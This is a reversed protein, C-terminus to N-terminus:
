AGMKKEAYGILKTIGFTLTFYIIGVIIFPEISLYTIATINNKITMLDGIFFVSALSTEKILSVFENGLAPLIKKIAQPLVVKKMTKFKSLGLTRAAEYQGKDVAGLGARIIEAVYAGSNLFLAITVSVYAPWSAPSIMYLLWLLLLLPIGRVFEVYSTGIARVGKFRSRRIYSLFLAIITGFIVTILSLLLTVGTGKLFQVGYNKLVSYMRVFFNSQLEEQEVALSLSYESAYDVWKPFLEKAEKVAQNFEEILDSNNKVLGRTGEYVAVLDPNFNFKTLYKFSPDKACVDYASNRPLCIADLSGKKLLNLGDAIKSFKETDMELDLNVLEQQISGDQAGIKMTKETKIEELTKNFKDFNKDLVVLVHGGDGEEFYIDTFDFNNDREKSYTIGSLVIDAKAPSNLTAPCNEFSTELIELELGMKQAMFSALFIDAGQYKKQGSQKIDLFAYPAYDPSTAVVLKGEKVLTGDVTITQEYKQETWDVLETNTNSCGTLSFILIFSLVFYLIKKM